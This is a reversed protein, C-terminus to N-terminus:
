KAEETVVRVARGNRITVALTKTYHDFLLVNTQAFNAGPMSQNVTVRTSKGDNEVIHHFYQGRAQFDQLSEPNKFYQGSNIQTQVYRERTLDTKTEFKLDADPSPFSAGNYQLFYRAVKLEEGPDVKVDTVGNAAKSATYAVFQAQSCRTDNNVLSSQYATTLAYTSPSVSFQKQILGDGTVAQAQCRTEMLQTVYQTNQTAKGRMQLIYYYIDQVTMKLNTAGTGSAATKVDTSNTQFAAATCQASPLPTLRLEYDSCPLVHNIKMISLADIKWVLELTNVRESSEVIKLGVLTTADASITRDATLTNPVRQFRLGDDAVHNVREKQDSAMMCSSKGVGNLWSGSYHLRKELTDIQAMFNDCRSVITGGILFEASQFLNALINMNLGMGDNSKIEDDNGKLVQVRMRIYSHSPLFYDNAGLNFKFSIMGNSFNNYTADRSPSVQRYHLNSIQGEPLQSVSSKLKFISSDIPM